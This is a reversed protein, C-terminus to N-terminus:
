FYSLIVEEPKADDADSDFSIQLQFNDRYLNFKQHYLEGDSFMTLLQQKQIPLGLSQYLKHFISPQDPRYFVSDAIRLKKVLDDDIQVQIYDGLIRWQGRETKFQHEPLAPPVTLTSWVPAQQLREPQLQQLVTLYLETSVLPVKLPQTKESANKLMFGTVLSEAPKQHELSYKEFKLLLQYQHNNLQLQQAGANTATPLQQRVDAIKSRYSVKSALLWSNSDFHDHLELLNQGYSSLFQRETQIQLLVDSFVLFLQRGYVHATLGNQLQIKADAQGFLHEVQMKTMGPQVGFVGKNFSVEQSLPALKTPPTSSILDNSISIRHTTSKANQVAGDESWRTPRNSLESNGDCFKIFSASGEIKLRHQTKNRDDYEVSSHVRQLILADAGDAAAQQRLSLLFNAKETAAREADGDQYSKLHRRDTHEKLVTPECVPHYNLIPPLPTAVAANVASPNCIAVMALTFKQRKQIFRYINSLVSTQQM